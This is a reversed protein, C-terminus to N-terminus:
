TKLFYARVVDVKPVRAGLKAGSRIFVAVANKFIHPFAAGMILYTKLAVKEEDSFWILVAAPSLVIMAATFTWYLPSNLTRKFKEQDLQFRLEYWYAVEVLVAGLAAVLFRTYEIPM